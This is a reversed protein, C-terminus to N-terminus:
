EIGMTVNADITILLVFTILKILNHIELHTKIM